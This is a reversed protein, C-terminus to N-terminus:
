DDFLITTLQYDKFMYEHWLEPTITIKKLYFYYENSKNNKPPNGFSTIGHLHYQSKTKHLELNGVIRCPYKIDNLFKILGNTFSEQTNINRTTITLAYLTPKTLGEYIFDM